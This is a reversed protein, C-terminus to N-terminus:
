GKGKLGKIGKVAKQSLLNTEFSRVRGNKTRHRKQALEILKLILSKFPVGTKEWLYFSFSGPITNIENFFWEGTTQNILFDFRAVGGANFAKFLTVSTEQIQKTLSESIPAPIIRSASAMGKGSGGMYKDDFSLVESTGVPQECVSAIAENHDGLVSCNVEILPYIAKEALLQDDYRFCNEITLSINKEGTAKEVGISSGLHVPKIFVTEGLTLVESLIASKNKTWESELIHVSPTVPVGLQKALLKAANKDMGVSSAMPGSGTYPVNFIECLGQFAGNEGDAGHFATLIVDVEYVKPKSFFGTSSNEALVTVGNENFRFSCPVGKQEAERLNKYSELNLLHSGTIFHGAKTIYLPIKNFTADDLASAAQIATIVSVEHEPSAGGFAIILNTKNM